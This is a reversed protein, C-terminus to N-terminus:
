SGLITITCFQFSNLERLLKYFSMISALESLSQFFFHIFIKETIETTEYIITLNIFIIMIKFFIEKM